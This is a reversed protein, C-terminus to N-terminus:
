TESLHGLAKYAPFELVNQLSQILKATYGTSVMSYGMGLM